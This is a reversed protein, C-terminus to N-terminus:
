CQDDDLKRKTAALEVDIKDVFVQKRELIEVLEFDDVFLYDGLLIAADKAYMRVAHQPEAEEHEHVRDLFPWQGVDDTQSAPEDKVEWESASNQLQPAYLRYIM